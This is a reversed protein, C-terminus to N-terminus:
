QAGLSLRSPSAGKHFFQFRGARQQKASYMAQDAEKLLEEASTGHQPYMSIGISASAMVSHPGISFPELNASVINEALREADGQGGLGELLVIFEDGGFRAVVDSERVSAQIRSAVQCLLEDGIHHGFTDNVTKFKDLDIFLVAVSERRRAARLIADETRDTLTRRNFLGTLVDRTALESARREAQRREIIELQLAANSEKLERLRQVRLDGNLEELERTKGQLELQKQVVEVFVSVKTQLIQPILPTFLFDVAGMQYGTLLRSIDDPSYATVFIIPVTAGRRTSRMVRVTEFGDMGPMNVDLLIVAFEHHLVQRLAEEGSTATVIGYSTSDPASELVSRLVLLSAPQDDVILVKPINMKGARATRFRAYPRSPSDLTSRLDISPIPDNEPQAHPILFPCFCAPMIGIGVKRVQRFAVQGSTPICSSTLDPHLGQIRLFAMAEAM